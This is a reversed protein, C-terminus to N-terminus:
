LQIIQNYPILGLNIGGSYYDITPTGTPNSLWIATEISTLTEDLNWLDDAINDIIDADEFSAQLENGYILLKDTSLRGVTPKGLKITKFIQEEDLQDDFDHSIGVSGLDFDDIERKIKPAEEEKKM